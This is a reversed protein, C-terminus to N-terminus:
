KQRHRSEWQRQAEMNAAQLKKLFEVEQRTYALEHELQTIRDADSVPEKKPHRKNLKRGDMFGTEREAKKKTHYAFGRIRSEGLVEPDIGIERFIEAAAKGETQEMYFRRVFEPTFQISKESVSRVHVNASLKVIQEQSFCNKSMIGKREPRTCRLLYAQGMDITEPVAKM